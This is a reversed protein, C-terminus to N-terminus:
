DERENLATIYSGDTANILVRVITQRKGNEAELSWAPTLQISGDAAEVPFYVLEIQDFKIKDEALKINDSTLNAPAAEVFKDMDESFSLIYASDAAKGKFDYRALLNFGLIGSNNISISNGMVDYAEEDDIQKTDMMVKQGCLDFMISADYGNRVAGSLDGDRSKAENLFIIENKQPETGEPMVIDYMNSYFSIGESPFSIQLNKELTDTVFKNLEEDSLTCENPRDAFEQELNITQLGSSYIYLNGDPSSATISDLEESGTLDSYKIPYFGMVLENYIQSYSIMLQYDINNYKGEYTHIYYTAEDVWAEHTQSFANYDAGNRYSVAQCCYVIARSDGKEANLYQRDSSNIATGSDGFFSKVIEDEKVSEQTLPEVNYVSLYDAENVHYGVNIESPKGDISFDSQYSLDTGGLMESLTKGSSDKVGSTQESAESSDSNESNSNSEDSSESSQIVGYDTVETNKKGCASLSLLGALLLCMLKRNKRM